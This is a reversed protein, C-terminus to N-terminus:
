RPVQTRCARAWPARDDALAFGRFEQPDLRRRTNSGVVGSVMVLIGSDDALQIFHRLAEEWTKLRKRISLDFQLIARIASAIERIDSEITATGIYSLPDAGNARAYNIYWDQRQQCVYITDLLDPSPEHPRQADLTRFDPIPVALQPPKSLFFLGIATHTARAFDQLQKFTPHLSGALWEDFKTFRSRVADPAIGAREVAWELLHPQVPVRTM